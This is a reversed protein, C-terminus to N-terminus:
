LTQIITSYRRRLIRVSDRPILRSNASCRIIEGPDYAGRKDRMTLKVNIYDKTDPWVPSEISVIKGPLLGSFTDCWVKLGKTYTYAM